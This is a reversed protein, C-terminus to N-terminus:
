LSDDLVFIRFSHFFVQCFDPLIDFLVTCKSVGSELICDPLLLDNWLQSDDLECKHFLKNLSKMGYFLRDRNHLM